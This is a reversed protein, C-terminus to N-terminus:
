GNDSIEKVLYEEMGRVYQPSQDRATRVVRDATELVRRPNLKFRECTLKFVIAAGMVVESPARTKTNDLATMWAALVQRAEKWRIDYLRDHRM